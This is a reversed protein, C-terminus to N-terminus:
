FVARALIIGFGLSVTTDNAASDTVKAAHPYRGPIIEETDIDNLDVTFMGAEAVTVTIGSSLNKDILVTPSDWSSRLQWSITAGTLNIPTEGDSSYITFALSADDGAVIFFPQDFSPM